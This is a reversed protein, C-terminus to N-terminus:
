RSLLHCATLNLPSCSSIDWFLITANTVVVTIVEYEVRPHYTSMKLTKREGIERLSCCEHTNLYILSSTILSYFFQM